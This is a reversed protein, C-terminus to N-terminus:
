ETGLSKFIFILSYLVYEAIENNLSKKIYRRGIGQTQLSVSYILKPTYFKGLKRIIPFNSSSYWNDFVQRSYEFQIEDLKSFDFIDSLFQIFIHFRFTPGANLILRHPSSSSLLESRNLFHNVGGVM